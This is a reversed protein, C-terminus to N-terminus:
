QMVYLGGAHKHLATKQGGGLLRRQEVSRLILFLQREHKKAGNHLGFIRKQLRLFTNCIWFIQPIIFFLVDGSLNKFFSLSSFLKYRSPIHIYFPLISPYIGKRRRM